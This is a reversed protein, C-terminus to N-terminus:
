EGRPPGIARRSLRKRREREVEQWMAKFHERQLEDLEARAMANFISLVIALAAVAYAVTVGAMTLAGWDRRGFAVAALGIHGAILGVLLVCLAVLRKM